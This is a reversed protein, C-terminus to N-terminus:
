MNFTNIDILSSEEIECKLSPMLTPLSPMAVIPTSGLSLRDTRQLSAVTKVAIPSCATRRVGAASWHPAATASARRPSSVIDILKVAESIPLKRKLRALTAIVLNEDTEDKIKRILSLLGAKGRRVATGTEGEVSDCAQFAHEAIERGCSRSL